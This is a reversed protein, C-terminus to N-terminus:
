GLIKYVHKWNWLLLVKFQCFYATEKTFDPNISNSPEIDPITGNNHRLFSVLIKSHLCIYKKRLASQTSMGDAYSIYCKVDIGCKVAVYNPFNIM